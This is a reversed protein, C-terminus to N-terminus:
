AWRARTASHSTSLPSSSQAHAEETRGVPEGGHALLRPAVLGGGGIGRRGGPDAGVGAGALRVHEGHAHQAQQEIAHLRLANQREGVGLRRGGLHRRAHELAEGFPHRRAIGLEFDASASKSSRAGDGSSISRARRSNALAMSVGPPRLTCVMWAKQSRRSCRKGSSAPTGGPKSMRSSWSRAARSASATSSVSVSAVDALRRLAAPARASIPPRSRRRLCNRHAAPRRAAGARTSRRPRAGRGRRRRAARRPPSSRDGPGPARPRRRAQLGGARREGVHKGLRLQRPHAVHQGGAGVAVDLRRLLDSGRKGGAARGARM